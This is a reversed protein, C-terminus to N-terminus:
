RDHGAGSRGGFVNVETAKLSAWAEAGRALGLAAASSPTVDARVDALGGLGEATGHLHLRTTGARESAGLVRVPWANRASGTPRDRTLTVAAPSFTVLVPGRATGTTVLRGGGDLLVEGDGSAEGTLVNLGLLRAAHATAPAEAVTHPDADQVVRGADLVVVRDALAHVDLADHTAFLVVGHHDALHRRLLERLEIAVAVDLAAFPEDFLLVEPEVALARAIAVRQAQGGSLRQPRRAAYEGIGLRDLWEQARGRARRRPVGRARPGFAVNELATLHPFLLHEQHVVGVSREPPPLRSWDVGDVRVSGRTPATGAVAALLSSKGSGNPGVLTVVEGPATALEARVRGPLDVSLQLAATM